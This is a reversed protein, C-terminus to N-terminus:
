LSRGEPTTISPPLPRPRRAERLPAGSSRKPHNRPSPSHHPAPTTLPTASPHGKIPQAARARPRCLSAHGHRPRCPRRAATWPRRRAPRPLCPRPALPDLPAHRTGHHDPGPRARSPRARTPRPPRPMPMGAPQEVAPRGASCRCIRAPTPARTVLPRSPSNGPALHLSWSM